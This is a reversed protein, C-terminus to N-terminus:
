RRSSRRRSGRPPYPAGVVREIDQRIEGPAAWAPNSCWPMNPCRTSSRAVTVTAEITSSTRRGHEIVAALDCAAVVDMGRARTGGAVYSTRSYAIDWRGDYAGAGM